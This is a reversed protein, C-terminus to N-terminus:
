LNDPDVGFIDMAVTREISSYVSITRYFAMRVGSVFSVLAILGLFANAVMDEHPNNLLSIVAWLGVIFLIVAVILRKTRIARHRGEIELYLDSVGSFSRFRDEAEKFSALRQEKWKRELKEVEERRKREERNLRDTWAKDLEEYHPDNLTCAKSCWLVGSIEHYVDGYDEIRKNCYECRGAM